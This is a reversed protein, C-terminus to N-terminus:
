LDRAPPCAWGCRMSARTTPTAEPGSPLAMLIRYISEVGAVLADLAGVSVDTAPTHALRLSSGRQRDLHCCSRSLSDWRRVRVGPIYRRSATKLLSLVGAM